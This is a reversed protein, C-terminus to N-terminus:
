IRENVLERLRGTIPGRNQEAMKGIKIFECLLDHDMTFGSLESEHGPWHRRVYGLCFIEPDHRMVRSFGRLLLGYELEEM